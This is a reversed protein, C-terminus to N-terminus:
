LAIILYNFDCLNIPVSILSNQYRIIKLTYMKEIYYPDFGIPLDHYVMQTLKLVKSNKYNINWIIYM